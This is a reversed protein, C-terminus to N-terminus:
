RCIVSLRRCIEKMVDNFLKQMADFDEYSDAVRRTYIDVNRPWMDCTKLLWLYACVAFVGPNIDCRVLAEFLYVNECLRDFDSIKIRDLCKLRLLEEIANIEDPTHTLPLEVFELLNLFPEKVLTYCDLPWASRLGKVFEDYNLRTSQTM